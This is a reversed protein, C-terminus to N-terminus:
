TVVNQEYTFWIVLHGNMPDRLIWSVLLRSMLPIETGGCTYLNSILDVYQLKHSSGRIFNPVMCTAVWMSELFEFSFEGLKQVM